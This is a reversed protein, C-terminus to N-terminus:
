GLFSLQFNLPSKERAECETAKGEILRDLADNIPTWDIYKEWKPNNPALFLKEKNELETKLSAAPIIYFTPNRDDITQMAVLVLFESNFRSRDSDVCFQYGGKGFVAAKVEITFRSAGCSVAFDGSGDSPLVTVPYYGCPGLRLREVFLWEGMKGVFQRKSM